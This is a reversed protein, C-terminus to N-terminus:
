KTPIFVKAPEIATMPRSPSIIPRVGGTLATVTHRTANGVDIRTTYRGPQTGYDLQYGAASTSPSANWALTIEAARAYQAFTLTLLTYLLRTTQTTTIKFM